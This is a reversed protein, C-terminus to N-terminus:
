SPLPRGFQSGLAALASQLTSSAFSKRPEKASSQIVVQPLRWCFSGLQHYFEGEWFWSMKVVKRLNLTILKSEGGVEVFMLSLALRCRSWCSSARCCTWALRTSNFRPEDTMKPRDKVAPFWWHEINLILTINYAINLYLCSNSESKFIYLNENRVTAITTSELQLSLTKKKGRDVRGPSKSARLVSCSFASSRDVRACICAFGGLAGKVRPLHDESCNCETKSRDYTNMHWMDYDYIFCIDDYTIAPVKLWDSTQLKWRPLRVAWPRPHHAWLSDQTVSRSAASSLIYFRNLELWMQTKTVVLIRFYAQLYYFCIAM